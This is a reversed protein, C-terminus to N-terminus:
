RPEDGNKCKGADRETGPIPTSEKWDPPLGIFIAGDDCVVVWEGSIDRFAAVPKRYDSM